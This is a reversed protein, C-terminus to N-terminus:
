PLAASWGTTAGNIDGSRVDDAAYYLPAGKYSLQNQGSSQAFVAFDTPLLSSVVSLSNRWFRPHTTLCSGTCSSVPDSTSTGITDEAYVYLTRGNGDALYKALTTGKMIVVGAPIVTAAHWTKAKAQGGLMGPILDTRFYYLPWGFYTTQSLGDSRQITGFAKDDLGAALTRAGADFVPWAIACDTVCTSIPL